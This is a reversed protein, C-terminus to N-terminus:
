NEVSVRSNFLRHVDGGALARLEAYGVLNWDPLAQTAVPDASFHFYIIPQAPTAPPLITDPEPTATMTLRIPGTDLDDKLVLRAEYADPDDFVEQWAMTLGVDLTFSAGRTICVPVEDICGCGM